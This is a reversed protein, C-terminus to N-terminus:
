NDPTVPGNMHRSHPSQPNSRMSSRRKAKFEEKTHEQVVWEEVVCTTVDRFTEVVRDAEAQDASEVSPPASAVVLKFHKFANRGYGEIDKVIAVCRRPQTNMEEAAQYFLDAHPKGKLGWSAFKQGDVVSDFLHALGAKELLWRCNKSYSVCAVQIGEERLDKLLATLDPDPTLTIQNVVERFRTRKANSIGCITADTPPDTSTGYPIDIGRSALVSKLGAHRDSGSVINKLCDYEELDLPKYQKNDQTGRLKLFDDLTEMWAQQHQDDISQIFLDMDFIVGDFELTAIDTFKDKLKLSVSKGEKLTVRTHGSHIFRISKGEVLTYTATRETVEVALRAGKFAIHFLYSDWEMPLYPDFHLMKNYVRMGAFGSTLCLWAGGMCATHIGHAVNKNVDDIDMRATCMFYEYAKTHYGIESAVISFISTSLSSDHTTLQEYYDFDARKEKLTFKEGLLFHALVLDAQKCVRHKYIVLPHYHLLLPYKHEPTNEFDWAKKKLFSDDQPHINTIKDHPLYMKEAARLWDLEEGELLGIKERLRQLDAPYENNLIQFIEHAYSMNMQAMINTYFNNDVIATYEDPGTVGHIQFTGTQWTGLEIWSRATEFIVEAAHRVLFEIDNTATIYAKFCYAIDANIHVQATGAPFYSSCEEGCITRWPFLCGKKINLERARNRAADLTHYRHLLLPKSMEPNTYLFFPMVYIEGDWFYHGNYGEGTLGKAGINTTGDRGMSQVLHFMNFRMGQQLYPDGRIEVDAAAWFKEYFLRQQELLGSFGVAKADALTKSARVHIEDKEFDRTTVYSIYKTLIVAKGRQGQVLFKVFKKQSHIPYEEQHMSYNDAELTNDMACVLFFGSTQTRHELAAFADHQKGYITQLVQGTLNAGVRPDDAASMNTVKGDLGSSIELKGDFNLPTVTYQIAALHKETQSCLRVVKIQVEHGKPSRWVVTRTM